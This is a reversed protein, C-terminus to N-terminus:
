TNMYDELLRLTSSRTSRGIKGGWSFAVNPTANCPFTYYGSTEDFGLEPVNAYFSRVVSPGAVLLTTGSDVITKIDVGANRQVNGFSAGHVIIERRGCRVRVHGRAAASPEHMHEGLTTGTCGDMALESCVCDTGVPLHAAKGQLRLNLSRLTMCVMVRVVSAVTSIANTDGCGSRHPHPSVPPMVLTHTCAHTDAPRSISDNLAFVFDIVTMYRNLVWQPYRPRASATSAAITSRM